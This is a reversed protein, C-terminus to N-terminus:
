EISGRLFTELEVPECFVVLDVCVRLSLVACFSGPPADCRM